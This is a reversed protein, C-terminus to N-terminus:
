RNNNNNIIQYYLMVNNNYIIYINIIELPDFWVYSHVNPGVVVISYDGGGGPLSTSYQSLLNSGNFSVFRNHRIIFQM